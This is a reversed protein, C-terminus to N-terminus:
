PMTEPHLCERRDQPLYSSGYTCSGLTSACVCRRPRAEFAVPPGGVGLSVAVRGCLLFLIRAHRVEAAIEDYLPKLQTCHGCWPAYFELLVDKGEAM